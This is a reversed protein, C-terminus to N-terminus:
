LFLDIPIVSSLTSISLKSINEETCYISSLNASVLIVSYFKLERINNQNTERSGRIKLESLLTSLANSDSILESVRHKQKLAAKSLASPSLGKSAWRKADILFIEKDKLAIIDIEYRKQSVSFRYNRISVYGNAGRASLLPSVLM